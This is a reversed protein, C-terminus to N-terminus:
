SECMQKAVKKMTDTDITTSSCNKLAEIWRTLHAEEPKRNRWKHMASYMQMVPTPNEMKCHDVEVKSLGLEMAALEWDKGVGQALRSMDRDTLRRLRIREPIEQLWAYPDAADGQNPLDVRTSELLDVLHQLGHEKLADIFVTYANDGKQLIKQIFCSNRNEQTNPNWGEIEDKDKFDFVNEEIFIDLLDKADIDKKIARYNKTIKQQLDPRM